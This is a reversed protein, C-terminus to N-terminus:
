GCDSEDELLIEFSSAAFGGQRTFEGVKCFPSTSKHSSNKLGDKYNISIDINVSM